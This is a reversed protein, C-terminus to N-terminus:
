PFLRMVGTMVIVVAAVMMTSIFAVNISKLLVDGNSLGHRKGGFPPPVLWFLRGRTPVDAADEVIDAVSLESTSRQQNPLKWGNVAIGLQGAVEPKELGTPDYVLPQYLEEADLQAFRRAADTRSDASLKKRAADLRQDVTFPSIGLKRAIEKSTYNDGVLRLCDIQGETLNPRRVGAMLNAGWYLGSPMYDLANEVGRNRVFRSYRCYRWKPLFKVQQSFLVAITPSAQM